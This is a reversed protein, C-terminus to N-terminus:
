SKISISNKPVSSDKQQESRVYTNRQQDRTYITVAIAFVILPQSQTTRGFGLWGTGM